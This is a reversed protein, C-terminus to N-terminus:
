GRLFMHVLSIHCKIGLYFAGDCDNCIFYGGKERTDDNQIHRNKYGTNMRYCDHKEECCLFCHFVLTDDM